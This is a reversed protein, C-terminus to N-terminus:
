RLEMGTRSLLLLKLAHESWEWIVKMFDFCNLVNSFLYFIVAMRSLTLFNWSHHYQLTITPYVIFAYRIAKLNPGKQM